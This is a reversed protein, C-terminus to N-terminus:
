TQAYEAKAKLYAQQSKKSIYNLIIDPNNKVKTKVRVAENHAELATNFTGMYLSYIIRNLKINLMSDYHGNKTKRTHPLERKRVITPNAEPHISVIKKRLDMISLDEESLIKKTLLYIERAIDPTNYVGMSGEGDKCKARVVYKGNNTLSYGKFKNVSLLSREKYTAEKLNSIVTNMRNGDIYILSKARKKFHYIWVCHSLSVHFKIGNINFGCMMKPYGKNDQPILFSGVSQGKICAGRTKRSVLEGDVYEYNEHLYDYILDVEEQTM